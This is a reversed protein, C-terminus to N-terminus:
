ITPKVTGCMYCRYDAHQLNNNKRTLKKIQRDITLRNNIAKKNISNKTIYKVIGGVRSVWTVLKMVIIVNKNFINNVRIEYVSLM